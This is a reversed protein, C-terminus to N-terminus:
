LDEIERSLSNLRDRVVRLERDDNVNTVRKGIDDVLTHLRDTTDAEARYGDRMSPRDVAIDVSGLSMDLPCEKCVLRLAIEVFLRYGNGVQEHEIDISSAGCSPCDCVPSTRSAGMM